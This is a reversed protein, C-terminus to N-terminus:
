MILRQLVCWDLVVCVIQRIVEITECLLIDEASRLYQNTVRHLRLLENLYILSMLSTVILIQLMVSLCKVMMSKSLRELFDSSERSLHFNRVPLSLYLSIM